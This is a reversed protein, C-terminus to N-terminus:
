ISNAPVKMARVSVTGRVGTGLATLSAVVNKGPAGIYVGKSNYPACAALPFDIRELSTNAGSTDTNITFTATATPDANMSVTCALVVWQNRDGPAALTVTAAGNVATAVQQSDPVGGILKDAYM